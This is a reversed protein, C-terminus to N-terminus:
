LPEPLGILASDALGLDIGYSLSARCKKVTLCLNAERALSEDRDNEGAEGVM